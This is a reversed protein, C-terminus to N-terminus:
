GQLPLRMDSINRAVPAGLTPMKRTVGLNLKNPAEAFVMVSFLVAFGTMGETTKHGYRAVALTVQRRRRDTAM